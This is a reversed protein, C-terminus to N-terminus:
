MPAMLTKIYRKKRSNRGGGVGDYHYYCQVNCKFAKKRFNQCGGDANRLM